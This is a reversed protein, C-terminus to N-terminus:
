ASHGPPAKANKAFDLNFFVVLTAGLASVDGLHAGLPLRPRLLPLPRPAAGSYREKTSSFYLGRGYRLGAATGFAARSANPGQGSFRLSFSGALISCLACQPAGCPACQDDVAFNCAAGTGHFRRRPNGVAAAYREHRERLMPSPRVAYVREVRPVTSPKRWAERFQRIVDARQPSQNTLLACSYDGSAGVFVREEGPTQTPLLRCIPLPCCM